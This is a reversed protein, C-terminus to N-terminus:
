KRFQFFIFIPIFCFLFFQESRYNSGFVFSSLLHYNNGGIIRGVGSIINNGSYAGDTMGFIGHAIHRIPSYIPCGPAVIGAPVIDNILSVSSNHKM